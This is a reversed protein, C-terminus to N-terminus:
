CQVVCRNNRHSRRSGAARHPSVRRVPHRRDQRRFAVHLGCINYSGRVLLEIRNYSQLGRKEGCEHNFFDCGSSLNKHHPHYGPLYWGSANIKYKKNLQTQM